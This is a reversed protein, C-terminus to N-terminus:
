CDGGNLTDICFGYHMLSLLHLAEFYAYKCEEEYVEAPSGCHIEDEDYYFDGREIAEMATDNDITDIYQRFVELRELMAGLTQPDDSGFECMSRIQEMNKKRDFHGDKYIEKLDLAAIEAIVQRILRKNATYQANKPRNALTLEKLTM